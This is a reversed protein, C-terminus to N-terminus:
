AAIANETNTSSMLRHTRLRLRAAAFGGTFNCSRYLSSSFAPHTMRSLPDPGERATCPLPQNQDSENGTDMLLTSQMAPLLWISSVDPMCFKKQSSLWQAHM